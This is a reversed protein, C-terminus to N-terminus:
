LADKGYKKMYAILWGVVENYSETGRPQNNMRLYRDYALSMVPEVANKSKLIYARYTKIDKKVQPHESKKLEIFCLPNYMFLDHMAYTYMDYYASYRFEVNDSVRGTLYSSFNAENEKAYGVQHGIEHCVIFPKTFVPVDTKVQAEATFPNYYGTFGFYRGAFTLLSAKISPPSYELFPYDRSAIQYAAVAEKFLTQDNNFALRKTSDVRAAYFNLRQQLAVTLEYLDGPTYHDPALGFQKAIGQRDYNLGWFVNFIIYIGLALKLFRTFGTWTFYHRSRRKSVERVAGWVKWAVWGFATFYLLDGVSFPVWGFLYRLTKSVFPYFGFTYYREVWDPNLSFIKILITAVVPSVLVRDRLVSKFM